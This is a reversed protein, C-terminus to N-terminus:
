LRHQPDMDAAEKPSIGFYGADFGTVDDLFGGAATYSRGTRAMDPTVFRRADFRDAPVEGVADRGELLASWLADPSDIGGPLRCSLGIIAIGRSLTDGRVSPQTM